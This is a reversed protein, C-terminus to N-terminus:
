LAFYHMHNWLAVLPCDSTLTCIAGRAEMLRLIGGYVRRAVDRQVCSEPLDDYVARVARKAFLM